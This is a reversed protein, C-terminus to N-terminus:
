RANSDLIVSFVKEDDRFFSVSVPLYFVPLPKLLTAFQSDALRAVDKETTIIIKEPSAINDFKQRVARLNGESFAHHDPFSILVQQNCKEKLADQLPTSDAIGTFLVVDTKRLENLSKTHASDHLSILNGYTFSSFLVKQKPQPNIKRVIESKEDPQMEPPCKTVVIVQARSAASKHERLNGAPLLFDNTFLNSYATLLISLSPKVYRHQFGDDMLILDIKNSSNLIRKIGEVRDECVVVKALPFKSKIQLSEDGCQLANMGAVVEMFGKTKRGYGRSLVAVKKTGSFHNLVYEVHPTKGTGGVTLNGVCIVPVPFSQSPLIKKDFLFNRIAVGVGYLLSFPFLLIRFNM